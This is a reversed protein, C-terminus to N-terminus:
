KARWEKLMWLLLVLYSIAGVIMYIVVMGVATSAAETSLMDAFVVMLMLVLVFNVLLFAIFTFFSMGSKYLNRALEAGVLAMMLGVLWFVMFARVQFDTLLGGFYISAMFLLAAVLIVM